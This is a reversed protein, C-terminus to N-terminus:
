HIRFSLGNFEYDMSVIVRLLCESLNKGPKNSVVFVWRLVVSGIFHFWNIRNSIFSIGYHYKLKLDLPENLLYISYLFKFLFSLRALISWSHKTKYEWLKQNYILIYNRLTYQRLYIYICCDKAMNYYHLM